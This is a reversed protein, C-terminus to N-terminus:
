AVGILIRPHANPALWRMISVLNAAPISVCGATPGGDTVHLFFASGAGARVPFRNYDIVVAYSYVYGAQYLNESVATNFPCSGPWCRAHQNYLSSHVDSVWWDASDTRFYPLATAPDAQSGFAQTLGFSGIPTASLSESPSTTLGQGGVHALLAGGYRLWGGAPARSWAQLTATTNGTSSAVVTIVQAASGTSFPLPLAQGRAPRPMPAAASPTVPAPHPSNVTRPPPAVPTSRPAGASSAPHATAPATPTATLGRTDFTEDTTAPVPRIPYTPAPAETTRGSSSPLPRVTQAAKPMTAAAMGVVLAACGVIALLVASTAVVRASPM